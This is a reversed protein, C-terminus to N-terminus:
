KMLGKEKYLKVAGPHYPTVQLSAMLEPTLEKMSSHVGRVKDIQEVLAKTLNYADQDSMAANAVVAAGFSVTTVDEPQYPYSGGKVVYPITGLEKSVKDVIGKSIPLMVVPLAQGVELLSAHRVFLSNNMLDVRRDKLLDAQEASAAYIVRGGWKEIDKVDVGAATFLETGVTAAINGQRNLVMRVPAKKSIIDDFTKIGHKDAFEKTLILQQPSWDYMYALVRMSKIPAKFPPKGDQADKLEVDHIIGLQVRKQDLLGVNAIGGGSTQYTITSGPYAAKVASDVGTGILTWLGGPSAGAITMNYSQASATAATALLAAGGVLALLKANM